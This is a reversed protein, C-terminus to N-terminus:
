PSIAAFIDVLEKLRQARLNHAEHAKMSAAHCRRAQERESVVALNTVERLLRIQAVSLKVNIVESM